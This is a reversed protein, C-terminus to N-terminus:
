GLDKSILPGLRNAVALPLRKWFAIATQYKPNTPNISPITNGGFLKFEYSLPQPSFGWHKKFAFSGSRGAHIAAQSAWSPRSACAQAAAASARLSVGPSGLVGSSSSM